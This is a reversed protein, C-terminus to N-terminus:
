WSVFFSIYYVIASLDKARDGTQGVFKVRIVELGQFSVGSTCFLFM